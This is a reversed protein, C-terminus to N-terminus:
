VKPFNINFKVRKVYGLRDVWIKIHIQYLISIDSLLVFMIYFNVSQCLKSIIQLLM